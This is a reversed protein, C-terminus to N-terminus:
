GRKGKGIMRKRWGGRKEEEDPLRVEQGSKQEMLEKEWGKGAEGVKGKGVRGVEAAEGEMSAARDEREKGRMRM